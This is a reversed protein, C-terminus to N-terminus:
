VKLVKCVDSRVSETPTIISDAVRAMHPLRRRARRVSRKEHTESHLLQSLDHITLVTASRRWLPVDFNTGHFLELKTRRIHRPLGVSWWHRGLIGVPV